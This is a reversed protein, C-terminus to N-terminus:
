EGGEEENEEKDFRGDTEHGFEKIMKKNLKVLEKIDDNSPNDNNVVKIEWGFKRKEKNKTPKGAVLKIFPKYPNTSQTETEEM